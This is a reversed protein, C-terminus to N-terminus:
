KGARPYSTAQLPEMRKSAAEGAPEPHAQPHLRSSLRGALHNPCCIAPIGSELDTTCLFPEYCFRGIDLWSGQGNGPSRMGTWQVIAFVVRLGTKSITHIFLSLEQEM